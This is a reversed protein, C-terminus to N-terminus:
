LVYSTLILVAVAVLAGRFQPISGFAARADSLLTSQNSLLISPTEATVNKGYIYSTMNPGPQNPDACKVTISKILTYFHGASVYDPDNWNIM